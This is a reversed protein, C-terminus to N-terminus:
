KSSFFIGTWWLYFLFISCFLCSIFFELMLVWMKWLSRMLVSKNRGVPIIYKKCFYKEGSKEWLHLSWPSGKKKKCDLIGCHWCTKFWVSLKWLNLSVYDMIKFSSFPVLWIKALWIGHRVIRSSVSSM